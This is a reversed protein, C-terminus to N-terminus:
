EDDWKLSIEKPLEKLLDMYVCICAFAKYIKHKTQEAVKVFEGLTNGIDQLTELDWYECPFSFLSIWVLAVM